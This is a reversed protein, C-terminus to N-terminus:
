WRTARRVRIGGACSWMARAGVAHRRPEVPPPPGDRARLAAPLGPRQPGTRCRSPALRVGCRPHARLRDGLHPRRGAPLLLDGAAGRRTALELDDQNRLLVTLVDRPLEEEGIEGAEVRAIISASARGLPGPVGRRVRRPGRGGRGTQCRPRRLLAGAHCGRHVADHVLVPPLDGRPHRASPRGRGNLGGPEDDDPPQPEVLEAQGEAVYPALTEEVIPPFLEREYEVHTDRRFLRNELRRRARHEAGHLNVLVDAMVVEGEDYLAQRLEKCRFAERAEAYSSLTIVDYDSM